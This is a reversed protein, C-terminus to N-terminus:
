FLKKNRLKKCDTKISARLYLTKSKLGKSYCNVDGNEFGVKQFFFVITFMLIINFIKIFFLNVLIQLEDSFGQQVTMSLPQNALLTTAVLKLRTEVYEFIMLTHTLTTDDNNPEDDDDDDSTRQNIVVVNIFSTDNVLTAEMSTLRGGNVFDFKCFFFIKLIEFL